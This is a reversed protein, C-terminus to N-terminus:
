SVTPPARIRPQAYTHLALRENKVATDADNLAPTIVQQFTASFTCSLNSFAHYLSCDLAEDHHKNKDNKPVFSSSFNKASGNGAPAYAHQYKHLVSHTQPDSLDHSHQAIDPLLHGAVHTSAALQGICLMAVLLWHILNHRTM